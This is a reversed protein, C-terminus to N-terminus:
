ANNKRRLGILSGLGMLGLIMSSPEPVPTPENIDISDINMDRSTTSFTIKEIGTYNFTKYQYNTSLLFKQEDFISGNKYATVTLYNNDNYISRLYAGLFDFVTGDPSLIAAPLGEDNYASNHGTKAKYLSWSNKDVWAMNDWLLGEYGDEIYGWGSSNPHIDEFKITEAKAQSASLVVIASLLISFLFKKM